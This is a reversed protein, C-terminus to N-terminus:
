EAVGVHRHVLRHPHRAGLELLRKGDDELLLTVDGAELHLRRALAGALLELDCQLVVAVALAGDRAQAPHGLGPEADVGAGVPYRADETPETHRHERRAVSEHSIAFRALAVYTALHEAM